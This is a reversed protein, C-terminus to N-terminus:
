VVSVPVRFWFDNVPVGHPFFTFANLSQCIALTIFKYGRFFKLLRTNSYDPLKADELM